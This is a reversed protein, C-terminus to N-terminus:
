QLDGRPQEPVDLDLRRADVGLEGVVGEIVGQAIPLARAPLIRCVRLLLLLPFPVIDAVGSVAPDALRQPSRGRPARLWVWIQASAVWQGVGM